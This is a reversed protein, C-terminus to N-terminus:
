FPAHRLSVRDLVVGGPPPLHRPLHPPGEMLSRPEAACDTSTYKSHASKAHTSSITRARLTSIKGARPWLNDSGRFTANQGLKAHALAIVHLLAVHQCATARV